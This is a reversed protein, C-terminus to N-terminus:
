NAVVPQALKSPSSKALHCLKILSEGLRKVEGDSTKDIIAKEVKAASATIPEFGYVGAEGKVSRCLRELRPRDLTQLSEEILRLKGSLAVVFDRACENLAPDNVLTSVLPEQKLSELLKGLSEKDYPKCICRDCGAKLCNDKDAPETLATVAVIIGSYGQSRLKKVAEAGDMVPMEMDMLIADYTKESALKVATEGNEAHDVETKLQSLLQKATEALPQDDEALLIRTKVAQSCFESPNIETNFHVGIEHVSGSVFTCRIVKSEVQKWTGFKSILQVVCPTGPYVFGGHIFSMGGASLDRTPVLYSTTSSIGSSKLQVVCSKVRYDFRESQRLSKKSADEAAALRDLVAKLEEDSLRITRVLKSNTNSV